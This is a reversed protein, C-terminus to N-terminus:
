KNVFEEYSHTHARFGAEKYCLSVMTSCLYSHTPPHKNTCSNSLSHDTFDACLITQKM